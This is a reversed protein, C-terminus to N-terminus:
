LSIFNPPLQPYITACSQINNYNMINNTKLVQNILSLRSVAWTSHVRTSYKFSMLYIPSQSYTFTTHGNTKAKHHVKFTDGQRRGLSIYSLIILGRKARCYYLWYTRLSMKWLPFHTTQHQLSFFFQPSLKISRVRSKIIKTGLNSLKHEWDLIMNQRRLSTFPILHRQSPVNLKFFFVIVFFVNIVSKWTGWGTLSGSCIMRWM